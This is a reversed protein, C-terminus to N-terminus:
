SRDKFRGQSGEKMQQIGLFWPTRLVIEIFNSEPM